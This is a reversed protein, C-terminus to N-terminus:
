WNGKRKYLHVITADKFKQPVAESTWASKFLESLRYILNLGSLIYLKGPIVDSGPVKGM